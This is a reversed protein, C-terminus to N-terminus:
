DSRMLKWAVLPFLNQNRLVSVTGQNHLIQQFVNQMNKWTFVSISDQLADMRRGFTSLFIAEIIYCQVRKDTQHEEGAKLVVYINVQDTRRIEVFM